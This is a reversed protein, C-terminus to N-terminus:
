KSIHITANSKDKAESTVYMKLGLKAPIKRGAQASSDINSYDRSDDFIPHMFIYPDVMDYSTLPYKVFDGKRISFAADHILTATSTLGGLITGKSNIALIPTQDADVVGNLGDGPHSKINANNEYFEDVYWVVVGTDYRLDTENPGYVHKLGEDAANHSRYEVLYYSKSVKIGDSKSFTEMNFKTDSEADDLFIVNKDKDVVQINDIYVGKELSGPDTAYNFRLEVASGTTIASGTTLQDLNFSLDVWGNSSGTMGNGRNPKPTGEAIDNNTKGENDKLNIWKSTGKIRGQAYFYDWDKETSYDTKIKLTLGSTTTIKIPTKTTLYAENNNVAGGFYSYSGIVKEVVRNRDPLNIRLIDDNPGKVSAQDLVFDLGTTPVDKLDVSSGKLWSSGPMESQFLQKCYPSFGTPETGGIVGAWSGGSMISWNAVPEGKGSYNIDYEDPLGIDHGYEHALVGAAADEPEMTYDSVTYKNGKSDKIEYPDISSRHSWVSDDGLKGGGAEQGAGAHIVMLHDIIGDPKHEGTERNFKDYESLDINSNKVLADLADRVLQDSHMNHNSGDASDEGYYKAEKPVGYWGFVKGDFSYSGGSQQNYYEKVTLYSNGEQAKFRPAGFLMNDYYDTNFNDMYRETESPTMGNHKVDKYDVLVVLVKDERVPGNWKENSPSLDGKNNRFRIGQTELNAKARDNAIQQQKSFKYDEQFNQLYNSLAADIEEETSSKSLKGQSILMKVLAKRDASVYQVNSGKYNLPKANAIPTALSAVMLAAMVSGLLKKSFM